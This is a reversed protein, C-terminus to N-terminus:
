YTPDPLKKVNDSIISTLQMVAQSLEAHREIESQIRVRDAELKKRLGQLEDILTEVERTSRETVRGLLTGLNKSSMEDDANALHGFAVDSPKLAHLAEGIGVELSEDIATAVIAKNMVCEGCQNNGDAVNAVGSSHNQKNTIQKTKTQDENTIQKPFV